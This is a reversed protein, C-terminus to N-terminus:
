KVLFKGSKKAGRPRERAAQAELTRLTREDLLKKAYSQASKIVASESSIPNDLIQSLEKIFASATFDHGTKEWLLLDLYPLVGSNYWKLFDSNKMFPIEPSKHTKRLDRLLDRMERILIEDKIALDIAIVPQGWWSLPPEHFDSTGDEHFTIKGTTGKEGYNKPEINGRNGTTLLKVGPGQLPSISHGIVPDTIFYGSRATIKGLVPNEHQTEKTVVHAKAEEVRQWTIIPNERVMDFAKSLREFNKDANKLCWDYNEFLRSRFVLQEYWGMAGFSRSPRYKEIDFWDPLGTSGKKPRGAKAM